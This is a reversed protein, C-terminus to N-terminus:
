GAGCNFHERTIVLIRLCMGVAFFSEWLAYAANQWRLGTSFPSLDGSAMGDLIMIALWFIPAALLPAKFWNMAIPRLIVFCSIEM